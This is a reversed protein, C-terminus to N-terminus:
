TKKNKEITKSIKDFICRHKKKFNIVKFDDSVFAHTTNGTALLENDRERVIEYEFVIKVARLEVAKTKITVLDDYKAPIKYKCGVDVVPVLINNKELVKYELGLARFFETRGIEFWTLYNGNYVVGMQDTEQYRVRITTENIM